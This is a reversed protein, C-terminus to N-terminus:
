ERITPLTSPPCHSPGGHQAAERHSYEEAPRSSRVSLSFLDVPSVSVRSLPRSVNGAFYFSPCFSRASSVALSVVHLSVSPGKHFVVAVPSSKNVTQRFSRLVALFSILALYIDFTLSAPIFGHLAACMWCCQQPRQPRACLLEVVGEDVSPPPQHLPRSVIPAISKRDPCRILQINVTQM